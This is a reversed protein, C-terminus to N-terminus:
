WCLRNVYSSVDAFPPVGMRRDDLREISSMTTTAAVSAAQPPAPSVSTAAPSDAPRSPGRPVNTLVVAPSSWPAYTSSAPSTSANRPTGYAAGGTPSARQRGGRGAVRHYPTRVAVSNPGTQQCRSRSM